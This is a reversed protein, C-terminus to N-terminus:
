KKGLVFRVTVTAGPPGGIAPRVITLDASKADKVYRSPVEVMECSTPSKKCTDESKSWNGSQFDGPHFAGHLTALDSGCSQEVNGSKGTPAMCSTMVDAVNPNSELPTGKAPSAITPVVTQGPLLKIGCGSPSAYFQGSAFQDGCTKAAADAVKRADERVADLTPKIEAPVSKGCSALLVFAFAISTTVRRM